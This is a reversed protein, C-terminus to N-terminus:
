VHHGTGPTNYSLLAESRLWVIVAPHVEVDHVQIPHHHRHCRYAIPIDGRLVGAVPDVHDQRHKDGWEKESGDDRKESVDCLTEEVVLDLQPQLFRHPKQSTAIDAGLQLSPHHLIQLTADPLLVLQRQRWVEKGLQRRPHLSLKRKFKYAGSDKPEGEESTGLVRKGGVERHEVGPHVTLLAVEDHLRALEQLFEHEYNVTPQQDRPLISLVVGGVAHHLLPCQPLLRWRGKGEICHTLNFNPCATPNALGTEEVVGANALRGRVCGLFGLKCHQLSGVVM